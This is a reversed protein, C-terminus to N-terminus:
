GYKGKRNNNKIKKAKKEKKTLKKVRQAPALDVVNHSNYSQVLFERLEPGSISEQAIPLLVRAFVSSLSKKNYKYKKPINDQLEIMWKKNKENGGVIIDIRFPPLSIKSKTLPIKEAGQVLELINIIAQMLGEETYNNNFHYRNFNGKLQKRRVSEILLSEAATIIRKGYWLKELGKPVRINLTTQGKKYKLKENEAEIKHIESMTMEFQAGKLNGLKLNAESRQERNKSSSKEDLIKKIHLFERDVPISCVYKRGQTTKDFFKLNSNSNNNNTLLEQSKGYLVGVIRFQWKPGNYESVRAEIIPTGSNGKRPETGDECEYQVPYTGPKTKLKLFKVEPEITNKFDFDIYFRYTLDCGATVKSFIFPLCEFNQKQELNKVIAVDPSDKKDKPRCYAGEGNIKLENGFADYLAVNNLDTNKDLVHANTAFWKTYQYYGSGTKKFQLNDITILLPYIYKEVSEFFGELEKFYKKAKNKRNNISSNIIERAKREQELRNELSM